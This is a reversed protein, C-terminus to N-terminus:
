ASPPRGRPVVKGNLEMPGVSEPDGDHQHVMVMARGAQFHDILEDVTSPQDDGLRRDVPLHEDTITGDIRGNHADLPDSGDHSRVAPWPNGTEDDIRRGDIDYLDLVHPMEPHETDHIHVADVPEDLATVHLSFALTSDGERPDERLTLVGHGASDAGSLHVSFRAPPCRSGRATAMPITGVALGGCITQLVTRRRAGSNTLKRKTM